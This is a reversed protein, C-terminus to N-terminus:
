KSQIQRGCAMNAPVAEMMKKPDSLKLNKMIEVFEKKSRGGGIRPNHQKELAITSKTQGRYDHGPYVTFHDPLQFLKHISDYLKESSGQQFDTRGNGRVLLTDGTFVMDEIVYSVCSDTHGPTELVEIRTPGLTLIDGNKLPIDACDVGAAAGLGTKIQLRERLQGAATIHDAHVHTDLVYKLKVGLETILKIDREITELVPDILVAEKTTADAVLYTYTSTESEFLQYFILSKSVPIM